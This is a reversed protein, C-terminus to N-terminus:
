DHTVRADILLASPDHTRKQIFTCPRQNGTGTAPCDEEDAERQRQASIRRRLKICPKPNALARGRVHHSLPPTPSVAPPSGAREVGGVTHGVSRVRPRSYM